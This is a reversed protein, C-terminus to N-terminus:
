IRVGALWSARMKIAREDSVGDWFIYFYKSKEGSRNAPSLTLASISILFIAHEFRDDNMAVITPDSKIGLYAWWAQLPRLYMSIKPSLTRNRSAGLRGNGGVFM